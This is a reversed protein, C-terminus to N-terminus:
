RLFITKWTLIFLPRCFFFNVLLSQFVQAVLIAIAAGIIGYKDIFIVSLFITLVAGSLAQYLAIKTRRENILWASQACGLAVPILTFIHIIFVDKSQIYESGYIYPIAAYGLAGICLACVVSGIYMVRFFSKIENKYDKEGKEKAKAIVPAFSTLLLTPFMYSMEALNVGVSYIGVAKYGLKNGVLFIGIKMFVIISVSSVALPWSEGLLKLIYKMDFYSLKIKRKFDYKSLSIFLFFSAFLTELPILMFIIINKLSAFIVILKIVINIIYSKMRAIVTLRSASQSQFFLDVVNGISFLISLIIILITIVSDEIFAFAVLTGSFVCILSSVLKLKIVSVLIGGANSRNKAMDRVVIADVGLNSIAQFFATYALGYSLQGFSEAGLYRAVLVSVFFGVILRIVREFFLWGFNRVAKSLKIGNIYASIKFFYKM